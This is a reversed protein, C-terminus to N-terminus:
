RAGTPDREEPEERLQSRTKQDITSHLGTERAYRAVAVHDRISDHRFRMHQRCCAYAHRGTKDLCSDCPVSTAELVHKCKGEEDCAAAGLRAKPYLRMLCSNFTLAPNKPWANLVAVTLPQKEVDGPDTARALEFNAQSRDAEFRRRLQSTSYQFM